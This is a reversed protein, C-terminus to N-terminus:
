SKKFTLKSNFIYQILAIIFLQILKAYKINIGLLFNFKIILYGLSVGSFCSLTFFIIQKLSSLNKSTSRFTFKTHGIYSILSGLIYGTSNSIFLNKSSYFILLTMLYDIGQCIGGVILYKLLNKNKLFLSKKVDIKKSRSLKFIELKHTSLKKRTGFYHM